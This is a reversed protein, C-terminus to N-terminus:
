KRQKKKKKQKNSGALPTDYPDKYEPERTTQIFGDDDEEGAFEDYDTSSTVGGDDSARHGRLFAELRYKIKEEVEQYDGIYDNVTADMFGVAKLVPRVLHNIFNDIGDVNENTEITIIGYKNTLQLKTTM